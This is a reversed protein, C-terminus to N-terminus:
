YRFGIGVGGWLQTDALLKNDIGDTYFLYGELRFDGYRKSINLLTNLSYSGILGIDYHQFGTDANPANSFQRDNVVYAVRGLLTVTVGLDRLEFDHKLGGELYLGEYLDYDYAALVYPTFVPKDTRFFVSDDLTASAWIEATNIAEREPFIYNTHGAALTLPRVTWELGVFPRIEQFRSVPDDDFVNVFLGVFPHPLSGLDFNLRGDFQLNPADEAGPSKGTDAPFTVPNGHEDRFGGGPESRDIGRFVYDTLYSVTLDIHVGGNNVAEQQPSPGGVAPLDYITEVDQQLMSLHLPEEAFGQAEGARVSSTVWLGALVAAASATAAFRVGRRAKRKHEDM